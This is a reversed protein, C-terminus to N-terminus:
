ILFQWIWVNSIYIHFQIQILIAHIAQNHFQYPIILIFITSNKNSGLFYISYEHWSTQTMQTYALTLCTQSM